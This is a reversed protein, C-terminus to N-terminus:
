LYESIDMDDKKTTATPKRVQIDMDTSTIATPRESREKRNQMARVENLNNVMTGFVYSFENWKTQFSMSLIINDLRPEIYKYTTYMQEYTVGEKYRKYKKNGAKVTGNRLDQIKEFMRGDLVELKHLKRIFNYLTDLEESEKEKFEDDALKAAECLPHYYSRVLKESGNKNFKGTSKSHCVMELKEGDEKCWKCKPM